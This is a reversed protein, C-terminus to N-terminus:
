LKLIEDLVIDALINKSILKTDLIQGNKGAIFAKNTDGDFGCGEEAINNAVVLDANKDALKKRASELLNEAEACFVVLKKDGKIRGVEKAIDANKVLQLVPEKEKIKKDSENKVKYDGVAASKIIIDNQAVRCLVERAMDEATLANVTKIYAPVSVSHTGLILTVEAGRRLAAEALALGTKGSSRNTINRVADIKEATGGATILVRKGKYDEKAGLADKTAALIKDIAALRGKGEDGCALRGCEPEIIIYGEKKLATLNKQFFVNNYMGTNMAPAIIKPASTAMITTSLMDDAIGGAIKGIINATAPVVVFVDAKKALSIHEVDFDYPAFMDASVANKSLIEFTKPAVFETASKTMIVNIEAGEKKLASVIECAKYAAIGGTVGVVINKGHLM